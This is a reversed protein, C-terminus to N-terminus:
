CRSASGTSPWGADSRAPPAPGRGTFVGAASSGRQQGGIQDHSAEVLALDLGAEDIGGALLRQGEGLLQDLKELGVLAAGAALEFRREGLQAAGIGLEQQMAAEGLQEEVAGGDFAGGLRRGLLQAPPDERQGRLV